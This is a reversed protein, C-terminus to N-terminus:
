PQRELLIATAQDDLDPECDKAWVIRTEAVDFKYYTIVLKGDKRVILVRWRLGRWKAAMGNIWTM